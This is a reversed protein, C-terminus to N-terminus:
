YSKSTQPLFFDSFRWPSTMHVRLIETHKLVFAGYFKKNITTGMVVFKTIPVFDYSYTM